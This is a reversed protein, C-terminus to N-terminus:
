KKKDMFQPDITNIKSMASYYGAAAQRSKKVQRIKKRENGFYLELAARNQAELGRIEVSKNNIERILEQMKEIEDKYLHRKEKLIDGVKQYLSDFEGDLENLGQILTSKEDALEHFAEESFQEELLLARQQRTKEALLYVFAIKQELLEMLAAVASGESTKEM